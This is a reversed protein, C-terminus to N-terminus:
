EFQLNEVHKKAVMRDLEATDYELILKLHEIIPMAM